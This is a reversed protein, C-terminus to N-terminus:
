GFAKSRLISSQITKPYQRRVALFCGPLLSGLKMQCSKRAPKVSMTPPDLLRAVFRLMKSLLTRSVGWGLGGGGRRRDGFM